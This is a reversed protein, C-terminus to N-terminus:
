SEPPAYPILTEEPHQPCTPVPQNPSERLWSYGCDELSCLYLELNGFNTPDGALNQFSRDGSDELRGLYAEFWLDITPYPDIATELDDAAATPDAKARDLIEALDADLATATDRDLFKTLVTRVAQGATIFDDDTLM